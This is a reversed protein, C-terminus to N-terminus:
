QMEQLFQTMAQEMAQPNSQIQNIDIGKGTAWEQFAAM